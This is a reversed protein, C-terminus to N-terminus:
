KQHLLPSSEPLPEPRPDLLEDLHLWLIRGYHFVLPILVVILIGIIILFPRLSVGALFLAISVPLLFIFYIVYGMFISMSWYGVEREYHIGCQPCDPHMRFPRYFVQGELCHSCRM